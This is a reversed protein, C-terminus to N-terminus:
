PSLHLARHAVIQEIAPLHKGLPRGRQPPVKSVEFISSSILEM